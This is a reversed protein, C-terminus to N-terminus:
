KPQVPKISIERFGLFRVTIKNKILKESRDDENMQMKGEHIVQFESVIVGVTEQWKPRAFEIPHIVLFREDCHFDKGADWQNQSPHWEVVQPEVPGCHVDGWFPVRQALAKFQQKVQRHETLLKKYFAKVEVAAEFREKRSSKTLEIAPSDAFSQASLGLSLCLVAFFKM